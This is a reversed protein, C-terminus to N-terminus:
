DGDIGAAFEAPCGPFSTVPEGLRRLWRLLEGRHYATGPRDTRV